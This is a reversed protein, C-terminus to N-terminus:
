RDAELVDEAAMTEDITKPGFVSQRVGFAGALIAVMEAIAKGAPDTWEEGPTWGLLFESAALLVAVVLGGVLAPENRLREMM